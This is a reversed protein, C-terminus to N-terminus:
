LNWVESYIVAQPCAAPPTIEGCSNDSRQLRFQGRVREPWLRPSGGRFLKRDAWWKGVRSPPGSRGKGRAPAPSGGFADGGRHGSPPPISSKRARLWVNIGPHARM